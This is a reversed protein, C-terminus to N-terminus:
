ISKDKDTLAIPGHKEEFKRICTNILYMIQGSKSRDDYKAVYHFKELTEADIRISIHKQNGM